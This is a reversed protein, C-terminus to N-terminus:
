PPTKGSVAGLAGPISLTSGFLARGSGLWDRDLCITVRAHLPDVM